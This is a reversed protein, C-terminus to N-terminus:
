KGIIYSDLLSLFKNVDYSPFRYVGTVYFSTECVRLVAKISYYNGIFNYGIDSINFNNYVFM